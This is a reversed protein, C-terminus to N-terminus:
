RSPTRGDAGGARRAGRVRPPRDQGPRPRPVVERPILPGAVIQQLVSAQERHVALSRELVWVLELLERTMEDTWRGPRLADLSSSKRGRPASMRFGLWSRLVKFGSVEYEWIDKSVPAFRGAGVRLIEGAHGFATPYSDEPIAALCRADGTIAPADHDNMREGFTHLRLLERGLASMAKFLEPRATLPVRPGPEALAEALLETYGPHALCGHVYALLEEPQVAFGLEGQLLELLGAAINPETASPDRWLPIVGRDGFSGRFHHLDPVHASAILAPGRSLGTSMLTTLYIQREGRIQWLVPRLRDGLRGDALCWQRDLARWGYRVIPPVAATAPLSAIPPLRATGDLLDDGERAVTWSESEHFPERRDEAALLARWRAVLLERTEGVPWTRKWQAGSHRWPFLEDLRPWRAHDGAAGPVFPDEWGDPARRWDLDGFSQLSRLRELKQARDLGDPLRCYRVEAPRERNVPGRRQAVTICVPTTIAFVNATRRPGLADGGIDVIWLEDLLERMFRRMAVFGPGRLFSSATVFCVIGGEGAREILWLAWRWFYVYDNYLNKAHQGAGSSPAPLFDAFIAPEGREGHRVWGGRRRTTDGDALAVGQRDYPPNGICVLVEAARPLESPGALVDKLLIQAGDPPLRAGANALLETLRMHAVAHPGAMLEFAALNEALRTAVVGNAAHSRALTSEIVHALYNGTGCAPDLTVVGPEAFGLPRGFRVELLERVLATQAAVVEAPTYFAGADDRSTPDYAALFSEYFWLWPDGAGRLVGPDVAAITRELPRVEDGQSAAVELARALLGGPAAGCHVALLACMVLQAYADALRVDDVDGPLRSRWPALLERLRSDPAALDSRAADRLRRCPGALTM